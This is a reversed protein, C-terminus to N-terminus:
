PKPGHERTVQYIDRTELCVATLVGRRYAATDIGIKTPVVLPEDLEYHGFVVPKGWSFTSSLFGPVGWVYVEPPSEWFPAGPLAGAHSYWANGDEYMVRTQALFAGMRPPVEGDYLQWVKSAGPINPCGTFESGDWLELWAADHNGWSFVTYLRPLNSSCTLPQM